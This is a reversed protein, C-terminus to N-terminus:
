YHYTATIEIPGSEAVYNIIISTVRGNGTLIVLEVDYDLAVGLIDYTNDAKVTGRLVSSEVTVTEFLAEDLAIDFSVAEAAAVGGIEESLQGDASVTVVGTYTSKPGLEVSDVNFENFLEYSYNVTASGDSNFDVNYEGNLDGLVANLEVTIKASVPASADIAQQISSVDAPPTEDKGGGLLGCSAFAFICGVILILALIKKM